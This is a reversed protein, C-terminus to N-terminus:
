MTSGTEVRHAHMGLCDLSEWAPVLTLLKFPLGLYFMLRVQLTRSIQEYESDTPLSECTLLYVLAARLRDAPMGKENQLM